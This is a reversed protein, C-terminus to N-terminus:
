DYKKEARKSGGTKAFLSKFEDSTMYGEKQMETSVLTAIRIAGAAQASELLMAWAQETHGLLYFKKAIVCQRSWFFITNEILTENKTSPNLMLRRTNIVSDLTEDRTLRIKCKQCTPYTNRSSPLDVTGDPDMRKHSVDFSDITSDALELFSRIRDEQEGIIPIVM